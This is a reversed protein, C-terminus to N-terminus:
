IFTPALVPQWTKTLPKQETARVCLVSGVPWPSHDAGRGVSRSCQCAPAGALDQYLWSVKAPNLRSQLWCAKALTKFWEAGWDPFAWLHCVLTRFVPNDDFGFLSAHRTVLESQNGETRAPNFNRCTDGLPM